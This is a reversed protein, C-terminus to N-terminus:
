SEIDDTSKITARRRTVALAAGGVAILVVAGGILGPIAGTRALTGTPLKSTTDGVPTGTGDPFPDAM